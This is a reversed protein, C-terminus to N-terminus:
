AALISINEVQELTEDGVSINVRLNNNGKTVVMVKTKSINLKLGRQESSQVLARILTQLKEASDAILVTDDAYRINNINRGGVSIGDLEMLERM